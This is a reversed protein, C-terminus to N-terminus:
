LRKARENRFRLIADSASRKKICRDCKCNGIPNITEAAATLADHECARFATLLLHLDTTAVPTTRRTALEWDRVWEEPTKM